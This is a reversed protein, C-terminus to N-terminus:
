DESNLREILAIAARLGDCAASTIGGAYGAGEGCALLGPVNTEFNEDRSIRVPSSTRAEVGAIISDPSDFDKIERSFAHMGETIAEQMFEPLISKVDAPASLGMFAPEFGEGSPMTEGKEFEGFTEYPILGGRLNYAKEELERQLSLGSLEDGPFDGPTVNVILASNAMGSDRKNYSMGNVCLGGEESSSNIVYGGPCMCFSFISRGNSAKHTLKYSAPGLIEEKLLLDDKGYLAEDILRQPHQVRVGMAFAKKSLSVGSDKLMRYIDRASHGQCLLIHSAPLKMEGGNLVAACVKGNETEFGTFLTDFYYTGGNEEIFGRMNKVIDMLIDTGIHPKSDTLIEDPAGFENFTELVFRIYSERGKIQTNLKGDSFLGAGGEGFQINSATNLKGTDFLIDCKKKRDDARSGREIIVPKLGASCLTLAAFLGAPGSGIIVPRADRKEEKVDPIKLPMVEIQTINRNHLKEIYQLETNRNPGTFTDRLKVDATYSFRLDSKDRADLSRKIVKFKRFGDEPIRLLVAARKRIEKEQDKVTVPVTIQNIRIM